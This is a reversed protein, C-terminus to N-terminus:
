LTVTSGDLFRYQVKAGRASIAEAPVNYASANKIRQLFLAAMTAGLRTADRQLMEAHWGRAFGRSNLRQILTKAM